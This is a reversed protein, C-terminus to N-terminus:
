FNNKCFFLNHLKKLWLKQACPQMKCLIGRNFLPFIHWGCSIRKRMPEYNWAIKHLKGALCGSQKGNGLQVGTEYSNQAAQRAYPILKNRFNWNKRRSLRVFKFKIKWKRFLNEVSKDIKNALISLNPKKKKNKSIDNPWQENM